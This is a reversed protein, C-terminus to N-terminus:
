RRTPFRSQTPSHSPDPLSSVFTIAAFHSRALHVHSAHFFHLLLPLTTSTIHPLFPLLLLLTPTHILPITTFLFRPLSRFTALRISLLSFPSLKRWRDPKERLQEDM